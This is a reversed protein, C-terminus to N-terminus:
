DPRCRPRSGAALCLCLLGLAVIIGVAMMAKERPTRKLLHSDEPGKKEEKVAVAVTPCGYSGCGGVERWCDGHHPTKCRPCVVVEDNPQFAKQCVVCQRGVLEHDASLVVVTEVVEM